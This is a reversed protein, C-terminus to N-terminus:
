AWAYAVQALWAILPTTFLSAVSGWLLGKAALHVAGGNVEAVMLCLVAAPMAMMITSIVFEPGTLPVGCWCCVLLVFIILLPAVLLRLLTTVALSRNETPAVAHSDSRPTGLLLGIQVISLPLATAALLSLGEWFPTIIGVYFPLAALEASSLKEMGKLGPFCFSLFLGIFLAVTQTNVFLQKLVERWGVGPRFSTMGFTWLYFLVGVNHLLIVRLGDSPFLPECVALGMFIWNPVGVLIRFTALEGSGAWWRATIYGFIDSVFMLFFGLLPFYWYIKMTELSISTPLYFIFYSPLAVFYMYKSIVNVSIEPLLKMRRGIYGVLILLCTTAIKYFVVSGSIM